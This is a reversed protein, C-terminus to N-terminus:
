EMNPKARRKLRNVIKKLSVAIVGGTVVFIISLFVPRLLPLINSLHINKIFLIGLFVGLIGGILISGMIMKKYGDTQFYHFLFGVLMFIALIQTASIQISASILSM